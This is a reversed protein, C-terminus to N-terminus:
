ERSQWGVSKGLNPTTPTTIERPRKAVHIEGVDSVDKGVGRERTEGEEVEPRCGGLPNARTVWSIMKKGPKQGGGKGVHSSAKTPFGQRNGTTTKEKVGGSTITRGV